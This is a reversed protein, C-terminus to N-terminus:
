GRAAAALIPELLDLHGELTFTRAMEWAGVRLRHHHEPDRLARVIADALGAATPPDAPASEGTKGSVLWDPIGGTAFAVAPLGVGAAEVGVLGFPEPWLSPVALLDAQRKLADLRDDDVWGVFQTRVGRAAARSQWKSSEPGQGTVTLELPRGLTAAASGLADILVDGGKIETLRGVFLVRGTIPRAVPPTADPPKPAPHPVLHLRDPSVDHRSYEERMHRSAVLVAAFKPLNSHRRAQRRYERWFTLPNLGGCRRPYHMALCGLGFRRTCPERAPFAHCKRGTACTGYYNHACLVTPIRRVIATELTPDVLGHVYALDPMWEMAARVASANESGGGEWCPAGPVADDIAPKGPISPREYVVALQHGRAALGPLVTRVHHEAGGMLFRNALAFLIRM